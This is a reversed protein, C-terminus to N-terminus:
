SDRGLGILRSLVTESQDIVMFHGGGEVELLESRPILSSSLKAMGMPVYHDCTGHWIVTPATVQAYNINWKSILSAYEQVVGGVGQKLAERINMQLIAAVSPRTVVKLDEPGLVARFWLAAMFPWRRWLMAIGRVAARGLWPFMLGIKLLVRNAISMEQLAGNQAPECVGSVIGLFNVREALTVAAALGYPTGGSVALLGFKDLKLADAIQRLDEACSFLSRGHAASSGGLGPRDIAILSVGLKACSGHALAAELSSGPFGHFYFIPRTLESSGIIRAIVTRGDELQIPRIDGLSSTTM